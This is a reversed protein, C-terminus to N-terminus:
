SNFLSLFPYYFQFRQPKVKWRQRNRGNQETEKKKCKDDTVKITEKIKRIRQTGKVYKKGREKEHQSEKKREREQM